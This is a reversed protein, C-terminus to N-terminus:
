ALEALQHHQIYQEVGNLREVTGVDFWQGRLLQGRIRHQAIFREFFPRLPKRAATEGEFARPDYLAAGSFTYGGGFSLAGDPRLSFDGQQHHAPNEVMFLLAWAGQLQARVLQGYDADMFTDGNVVVFPQEGLLPLAKIIGGATELGQEGEVSHFIRVGYQAGDGLTTVIQESLYASNVVIERIGAAKLKSIHWEILPRGGVRILPKPTTDTLPRLREGRGAALIMARM